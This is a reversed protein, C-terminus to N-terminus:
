DCRGRRVADSAHECWVVPGVVAVSGGVCAAVRRGHRAMSAAVRARLPACVVAVARERAALGVRDRLRAPHAALRRSADRSAASAAQAARTSGCRASLEDVNGATSATSTATAMTTGAMWLCAGTAASPTRGRSLAMM